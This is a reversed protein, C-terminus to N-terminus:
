KWGAEKECAKMEAPHTKEWQTITKTENDDMKNNMCTCYKSVIDVSVKADSNDSICKAVWKADDAGAFAAGSVLLSVALCTAGITFKM